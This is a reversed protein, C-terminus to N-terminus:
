NQIILTNGNNTSVVNYRKLVSESPGSIPQGNGWATDYITGCKPCEATGEDTPEIKINPSVEHPCCLDYAYYTKNDHGCVVLLGSYGIVEGGNRETTFTKYKLSGVLDHDVGTLSVKFYVRVDPVSSVNLKHCSMALLVVLCIVFRKM